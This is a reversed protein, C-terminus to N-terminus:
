QKVSESAGARRLVDPAVRRRQDGPVVGVELLATTPWRSAPRDLIRGRVPVDPTVRVTSAPTLGNFILAPTWDIRWPGDAERVLPLANQEALDGYIALRRTVEFGLRASTDTM